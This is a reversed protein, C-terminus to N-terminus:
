LIIIANGKSPNIENRFSTTVFTAFSMNNRYNLCKSRIFSPLIAYIHFPIPVLIPVDWYSKKLDLPLFLSCTHICQHIYSLFFIQM